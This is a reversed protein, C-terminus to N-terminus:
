LILIYMKSSIKRPNNSVYLLYMDYKINQTPFCTDRLYAKFM